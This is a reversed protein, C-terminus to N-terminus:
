GASPRQRGTFRSYVRRLSAIRGSVHPVPQCFRSPDVAANFFPNENVIAQLEKASKVVVPVEIEFTKAIGTSIEMAITNPTGTAASFVTNGSNLLTAVERYGCDSLMRRLAEMPVRKAKGVNIGRLLAVFKPM